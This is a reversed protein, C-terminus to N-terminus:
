YVYADSIITLRVVRGGDIDRSTEPIVSASDNEAQFFDLSPHLAPLIVYWSVVTFLSPTPPFVQYCRRRMRVLALQRAKREELPPYRLLYLPLLSSM